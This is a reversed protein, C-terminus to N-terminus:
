GCNEMINLNERKKKKVINLWGEDKKKKPKRRGSFCSFFLFFVHGRKETKLVSRQPFTM